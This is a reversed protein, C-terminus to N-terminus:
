FREEAEDESVSLAIDGDASFTAQVATVVPAPDTVLYEAQYETDDEESEETHETAQESADGEGISEGKTEEPDVVVFLGLKKPAPPESPAGTIEEQAPKLKRPSSSHSLTESPTAEETAEHSHNVSSHAETPSASMQTVSDRITEFATVPPPATGKAQSGGAAVTSRSPNAPPLSLHSASLNPKALPPLAQSGGLGLPSPKLPASSKSVSHRPPFNFSQLLPSQPTLPLLSGKSFVVSELEKAFRARGIYGRWTKQIKVVSNNARVLSSPSPLSSSSGRSLGERPASTERLLKLENALATAYSLLEAM